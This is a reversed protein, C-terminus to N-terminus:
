PSLGTAQLPLDDDNSNENVTKIFVQELTPQNISYDEISLQEKNGEFSKFVLSINM